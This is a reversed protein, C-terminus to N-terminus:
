VRDGGFFYFNLFGLVCSALVWLANGGHYECEIACSGAFGMGGGLGGSGVCIQRAGVLSARSAHMVDVKFGAIWRPVGVWYLFHFCGRRGEQYM